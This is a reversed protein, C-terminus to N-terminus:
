PTALGPVGINAKLIGPDGAPGSFLAFNTIYLDKKGAKGQGFAITAPFDLGDSADALVDIDGNHPDVRLLLDQANCAVYIDRHVDLAIGDAGFLLPDEAVVDADGPDGDKDIPVRVIRPVQSNALLLSHRDLAIGNVGIPFPVPSVDIDGLLLDDAFWLEAEDDGAAVRYVAGGISETVYLNGKKDLVLDNPFAGPSMAAVKDVAGEPSVKYVGTNADFSGLAVYVNGPGDTTMGLLFGNGPNFSAHTSVAGEPDIKLLQGTPAVSVFVNGKKDVAVGEPNEGYNPDLDLIQSLEGLGDAVATPLALLSLALTSLLLAPRM